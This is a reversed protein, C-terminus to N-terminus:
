PAVLVTVSTATWDPDGPVGTTSLPLKLGEPKDPSVKIGRTAVRTLADRLDQWHTAMSYRPMGGRKGELSNVNVAALRERISRATERDTTAFVRITDVGAPATYDWYFGASNDAHLSDPLLVTEGGRMRGEPHFSKSQYENPFLLNVTGDADVDVVTVYADTSVRVEVQLSNGRTRSEEQRRIRYKSAQTDAVPRVGRVGSPVNNTVVQVDVRLRSAHNDLTLLDATTASRAVAHVLGWTWKDDSMDWSTLLQLGDASMIQLHSDNVDVVFRAFQGPGVIETDKANRNLAQEIATRREPTMDRLRIPVRAPPPPPVLGVARSGSPVTTGIEQLYAVADNGKLATVTALAIAQGPRFQTEGPPYVALVAGPVAGMVAGQVLVGQHSEQPRVEIWPLRATKPADIARTTSTDSGSLLPRDLLDSPAELQPEPMSLRAFQGQIRKLEREIGRFVHRPTAGPEAAGLSRSLSYTFFGHYRGDVPGDLAEQDAAAGTMVVYRSPLTPVIKGRSGAAAGLKSYLAVRKDEPVARTLVKVGRTATGSHCSDLVVFLNPTQLRGLIEDIEDDTIDPVNDMRGDAPVLTEDKGDDKEDGNLDQVQSGHGSYHLYLIDAPGADQVFRELANLMGARTAAEDTLVTIHQESFGFRTILVHRMLQVDNISGELHPLTQYANIGILLARRVPERPLEPVAASIDGGPLLCFSVVLFGVQVVRQWAKHDM